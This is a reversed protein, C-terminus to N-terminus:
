LPVGTHESIAKQKELWADYALYALNWLASRDNKMGPLRGPFYQKLLKQVQCKKEADEVLQIQIKSKAIRDHTIKEYVRVISKDDVYDAHNILEYGLEELDLEIDVGEQVFFDYDSGKTSGGFYHSGTLHFKYPLNLLKLFDENILIHANEIM